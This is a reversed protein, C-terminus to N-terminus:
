EEEELHFSDAYSAGTLFDELVLEDCVDHYAESEEDNLVLLVKIVRSM